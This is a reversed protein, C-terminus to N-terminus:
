QPKTKPAEPPEESRHKRLAEALNKMLEQPLPIAGSFVPQVPGDPTAILTFNERLGLTLNDDLVPHGALDEMRLWAAGRVLEKLSDLRAAQKAFSVKQEENVADYRAAHITLDYQREYELALAWLSQAERDEIVAILTEGPKPRTLNSNARQIEVDTIQALAATIESLLTM